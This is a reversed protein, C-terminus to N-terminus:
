NKTKLLFCFFNAQAPTKYRSIPQTETTPSSHPSLILV